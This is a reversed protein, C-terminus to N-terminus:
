TITFLDIQLLGSLSKRLPINQAPYSQPAKVPRKKHIATYTAKCFLSFVDTYFPYLRLSNVWRLLSM